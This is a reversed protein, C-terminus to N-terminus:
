VMYVLSNHMKKAGFQNEPNFKLLVIDLVARFGTYDLQKLVV